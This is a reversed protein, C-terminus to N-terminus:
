TKNNDESFVIDCSLYDNLDEEVKLVLGEQNVQRSKGKVVAEHGILLDDDVYM